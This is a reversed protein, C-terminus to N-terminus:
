SQIPGSKHLTYYKCQFGGRVNLDGLVLLAGVPPDLLMVSHERVSM